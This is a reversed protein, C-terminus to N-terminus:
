DEGRELKEDGLATLPDDSIKRRRKERAPPSWSHPAFAALAAAVAKRTPKAAMAKRERTWRVM